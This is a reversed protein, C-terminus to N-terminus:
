VMARDCQSQNPISILYGNRPMRKRVHSSKEARPGVIQAHHLLHSICDKEDNATRAQYETHNSEFANLYHNNM